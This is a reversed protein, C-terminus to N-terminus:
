ERVRPADEWVLRLGAAEGPKRAYRADVALDAVAVLHEGGGATANAGEAFSGDAFVLPLREREWPLVASRRLWEKLPVSQGGEKSRLREGGSRMRVRLTAPLAATSIPGAVDRVLRLSGRGEGLSLAAGGRWRWVLARTAETASPADKTRPVCAHLKGRFRRVEGGPWRVLPQADARARPLELRIRELHRADPMSLGSARIWHRLLNRQRATDLSELAALQVCGDVIVRQADIQALVALLAKAEGLHAATRANVRAVAPWRSRLLPLVQARLFNRDFREDSNSPDEVPEIGRAQVWAVLEERSCELLPRLHFSKAFPAHAPMAALGSVGAGRLWQLLFTELQDDLHHATLLVEDSRLTRALVAYRAERAAAELSRGSAQVHVRRVTLPVDLDRCVKRCHRAWAASASQLQHDIHVARLAFRRWRVSRKRLRQLAALLALSDVGGSFAVLLGRVPAVAGHQDARQDTRQDARRDAISALERTLAGALTDILSVERKTALSPM